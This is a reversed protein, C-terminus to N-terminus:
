LGRARKKPRPNDTDGRPPLHCAVRVVDDVADDAFPQFEEIVVSPDSTQEHVICLFDSFDLPLQDRNGRMFTLRVKVRTAFSKHEKPFGSMNKCVPHSLGSATRFALLQRKSKPHWQPAELLLESLIKRLRRRKQLALRLTRASAFFRDARRPFTSALICLLRMSTDKLEPKELLDMFNSPVDFSGWGTHAAAAVENGPYNLLSFMIMGALHWIKPDTVSMIEYFATKADKAYGFPDKPDNCSEVHGTLYCDLDALTGIPFLSSSSPNTASIDIVTAAM